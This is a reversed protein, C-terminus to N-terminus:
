SYSPFTNTAQTRCTRRASTTVLHDVPKLEFGSDVLSLTLMSDMVDGSRSEFGSDVLSFTLMSDMVDGSRVQGPSSGV